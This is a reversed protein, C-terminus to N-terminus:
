WVTIEGQGAFNCGFYHVCEVGYQIGVQKHLYCMHIGIM